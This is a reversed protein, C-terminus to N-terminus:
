TPFSIVFFCVCSESLYSKRRIKEDKETKPLRASFLREDFLYAPFEVYSELAELIGWKYTEILIRLQRVNQIRFVKELIQKKPIKLYKEVNILYERCTEYIKQNEIKNQPTPFTKM